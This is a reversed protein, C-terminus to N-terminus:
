TWPFRQKSALESALDKKRPSEEGRADKNDRCWCTKSIMPLPDKEFEGDRSHWCNVEREESLRKVIWVNEKVGGYRLEGPGCRCSQNEEACYRWGEEAEAKPLSKVVM